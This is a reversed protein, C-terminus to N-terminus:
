KELETEFLAICLFIMKLWATTKVLPMGLCCPGNKPLRTVLQSDNQFGARDSTSGRCTM